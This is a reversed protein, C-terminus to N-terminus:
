RATRRARAPIRDRGPLVKGFLTVLEGGTGVKLLAAAHSDGYFAGSSVWAWPSAEDPRFYSNWNLPSMM